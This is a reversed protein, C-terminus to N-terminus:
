NVPTIVVSGAPATFTLLGGEETATYTGCDKGGVTVKWQGAAVGSVYYDLDYRGTVEFSLASKAGNRATAFIAAIKEDFAAGEVGNANSIQKVLAKSNNGKDTVYLVNMFTVYATNATSVIEIRGWHGDDLGDKSVIQKGNVLYNKSNACDYYNGTILRRDFVVAREQTFEEIINKAM